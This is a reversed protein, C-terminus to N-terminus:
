AVWLALRGLAGAIRLGTVRIAGCRGLRLTPSRAETLALIGNDTGPQIGSSMADGPRTRTAQAIWRAHCVMGCSYCLPMTAVRVRHPFWISVALAEPMPGSPSGPQRRPTVNLIRFPNSGPRRGCRWSLFYAKFPFRRAPDPMVRKVM